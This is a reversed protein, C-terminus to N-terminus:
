RALKAMRRVFDASERPATVPIMHGHGPLTECSLGYQEMQKGHLDPSLLNDDAGFLIGGPVDLDTAYRASQEPMCAHVAHLDASATVFAEPRFALEGGGRSMFDEPAPEPAFVASLTRRGTMRAIPAAITHGIARRVRGSSITLPKFVPPPESVGATLPCLLALAGVRDRNDLAMSLALAGGLSHGVLVPQEVGLQALLEWIMAAQAPLGALDDSDRTSYGSGPRDINIVRFDLSLDEIMGYNFNRLNGSLGHILVLTQRDRPGADTFHIAGGEVSRISGIQPVTKLAGAALWGTWTWFVILGVVVLLLLIAIYFM